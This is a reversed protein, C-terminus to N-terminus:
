VYGFLPLFFFNHFSCLRFHSFLILYLNVCPRNCAVLLMLSYYDPFFYRSFHILLLSFLSRLMGTSSHHQLKIRKSPEVSENALTSNDHQVRQFDRPLKRKQSNKKVAITNRCLLNRCESCIFDDTTIDVTNCQGGFVADFVSQSALVGIRYRCYGGQKAAFPISCICCNTDTKQARSAM